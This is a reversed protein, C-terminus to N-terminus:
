STPSASESDQGLDDLGSSGGYVSDDGDAPDAPAAAEAGAAEVGAEDVAATSSVDTPRGAGGEDHFAHEHASVADGEGEVIPGLGDDDDTFAVAQTGTGDKQGHKKSSTSPMVASRGRVAHKPRVTMASQGTRHGKGQGHGSLGSLQYVAAELSAWVGGTGGSQITAPMLIESAVMELMYLLDIFDASPADGVATDFVQIFRSHKAHHDRQTAWGADSCLRTFATRSLTGGATGGAYRDFTRCLRRLLRRGVPTDWGCRQWLIKGVMAEAGGLSPEVAAACQVLLELVLPSCSTSASAAVSQPVKSGQCTLTRMIVEFAAAVHEVVENHIPTNCAGDEDDGDHDSRATMCCPMNYNRCLLQWSQPTIVTETAEPVLHVAVRELLRVSDGLELHEDDAVEALAALLWEPSVGGRGRREPSMQDVSGGAVLCQLRGGAVLLGGCLQLSQSRELAAAVLMVRERCVELDWRAALTTTAELLDQLVPTSGLWRVARETRVPDGPHIPASEPPPNLLQVASREDASSGELTVRFWQPKLDLIRAIRRAVAELPDDAAKLLRRWRATTTPSVWALLDLAAPAGAVTSADAQTGVSALSSGGRFWLLACVDSYMVQHTAQEVKSAAKFAPQTLGALLAPGCPLHKLFDWKAFPPDRSVEGTFTKPPSPARAREPSPSTRRRVQMESLPHWGPITATGGPEVIAPCGIGIAPSQQWTCKELLWTRLSEPDRGKTRLCRSIRCRVPGSPFNPLQLDMTGRVEQLGREVAQGLGVGGALPAGVSRRRGPPQGVVGVGSLLDPQEPQEGDANRRGSRGRDRTDRTAAPKGALGEVSRRRRVCLGDRYDSRHVHSRLAEQLLTEEFPLYLGKVM